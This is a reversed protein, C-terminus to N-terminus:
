PRMQTTTKMSFKIPFVLKVFACLCTLATHNDYNSKNTLSASIFIHEKIPRTSILLSIILKYIVVFLITKINIRIM